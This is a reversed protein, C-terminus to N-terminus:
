RFSYGSGRLCDARYAVIDRGGFRLRTACSAPLITRVGQRQLCERGIVRQVQRGGTVDRLCSAPLTRFAPRGRDAHPRFDRHVSVPPVARPGSGRRASGSRDDDGDDDLIHALGGAILLAGLLQSVSDGAPQYQQAAAPASVVSTLALIAAVCCGLIPRAHRIDLRQM